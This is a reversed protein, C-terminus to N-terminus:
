SNPSDPLVPPCQPPQLFHRTIESLFTFNKQGSPPPLPRPVARRSLCVPLLPSILLPPLVSLLFFQHDVKIELVTGKKFPSSFFDAYPPAGGVAASLTPPNTLSVQWTRAPARLRPASDLFLPFFYAGLFNGPAFCWFFTSPPTPFLTRCHRQFTM